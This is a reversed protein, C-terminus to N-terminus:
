PRDHHEGSDAEQAIERTRRERIVFITEGFGNESAWKAGAPCEECPTIAGNWYCTPDDPCCVAPPTHGVDDCEICPEHGTGIMDYGDYSM